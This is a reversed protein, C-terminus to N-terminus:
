VLFEVQKGSSSFYVAIYTYIYYLLMDIKHNVTLSTHDLPFPLPPRHCPQGLTLLAPDQFLLALGLVNTVLCWVVQLLLQVKRRKKVLM